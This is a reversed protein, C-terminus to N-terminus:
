LRPYATHWERVIRALADPGTSKPVSILKSRFASPQIKEIHDSIVVIKAPPDLSDFLPLLYEGRDIAGSPRVLILDLLIVDYGHEARHLAEAAQERTAATELEIEYEACASRMADSFFPDDDVLLTRPTRKTTTFDM